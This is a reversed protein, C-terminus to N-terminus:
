LSNFVIPRMQGIRGFCQGFYELLNHNDVVSRAIAGGTPQSFVEAWGPLASFSQGGLSAPQPFHLFMTMGPRQSQGRARFGPVPGAFDIAQGTNM